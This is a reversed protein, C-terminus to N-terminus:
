VNGVQQSVIENIANRTADDAAYYRKSNKIVQKLIQNGVSNLHSFKLLRNLTDPSIDRLLQGIAFNFFPSAFIEVGAFDLEVAHEARLEPYTLEYVKMGDDPTMCTKGILTGIKYSKM